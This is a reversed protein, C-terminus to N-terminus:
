ETEVHLERVNQRAFRKFGKSSPLRVSLDEIVGGGRVNLSLTMGSGHREISIDAHVVSKATLIPWNKAEVGTWSPILRPVLRVLKPSTDDVGLVLRAVKLPETVNVLNLAGCSVSLRIKGIADPSYMQEHFYYPSERPLDYGPLLDHTATAFWNLGKDALDLRDFLLMAQLAYCHGYSPSTQLGALYVDFQTWIGYKDFQQRRLPTNYLSAFTRESPLQFPDKAAIPEFGLVDARMSAVGNLGGFGRNIEHNIIAPDPKMTKPDICWIWRGEADVLNDLMADATRKSLDRLKRAGSKDGSGDYGGAAALLALMVLGNQVVNIAEGPLSCGPGFEGSGAILPRSELRHRVFAVPSAPGTLFDHIRRRAPDDMPLREWLAAMGVIISATGDLEMGTGPKSGEFYEPFSFYGEENKRVLSILCDSLMVAHGLYGWQVLERMFTGGDRTWMTGAWPMGPLSAQVFGPPMTGGAEHIFNKQLVGRFSEAIERTFLDASRSGFFRIKGTKGEDLDNKMWIIRSVCLMGRVHILMDSLGSLLSCIRFRSGM